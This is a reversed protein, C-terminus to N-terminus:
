PKPRKRAGGAKGEPPKVPKNKIEITAIPMGVKIMFRLLAAAILIDHRLEPSSEFLVSIARAELRDALLSIEHRNYRKEM